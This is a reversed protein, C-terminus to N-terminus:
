GTYDASLAFIDRLKRYFVKEASRIDRIRALLEDFYEAGQPYGEKLRADDLTFGKVLFESLHETAWQRFQVGRHSRVRYGVALVAELNYLKIKYNKGDTATILYNKIVSEPSLEGSDFINRLHQTIASVSVQYLLALEKQSLWFGGSAQRLQIETTGDQTTYLIFEGLREGSLTAESIVPIKTKVSRTM